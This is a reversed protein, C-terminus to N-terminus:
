LLIIIWANIIFTPCTFYHKFLSRLSFISKFFSLLLLLPLLINSLYWFCKLGDVEVHGNAKQVLMMLFYILDNNGQVFDYVTLGEQVFQLDFAFVLLKSFFFFLFFVCIIHCEYFFCCCNKIGLKFFQFQSILEYSPPKLNLFFHVDFNYSLSLLERFNWGLPHLAWWSCRRGLQRAALPFGEAQVLLCFPERGRGAEDGVAAPSVAPISWHHRHGM